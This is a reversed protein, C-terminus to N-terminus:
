GDRYVVSRLPIGAVARAALRRQEDLAAPDLVSCPTLTGGAGLVDPDILRPKMRAVVAPHEPDEVVELEPRLEATDLKALVSADDGFLEDERLDGRALASAVIAGLRANAYAAAPHMFVQGVVVAYM